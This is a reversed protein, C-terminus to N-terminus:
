GLSLIKSVRNEGGRKEVMIGYKILNKIYKNVTLNGVGVAQKVKQVYDTKSACLGNFDKKLIDIMKKCDERIHRDEVRDILIQDFYKEQILPSAIAYTLPKDKFDAFLLSCASIVNRQLGSTHAFILDLVPPEIFDETKLDILNLRSQILKATNAINFQELPLKTFKGLMESYNFSIDYHTANLAFILNINNYNKHTILHWLFNLFKRFQDPEPNDPFDVLFYVPQKTAEALTENTFVEFHEADEILRSFVFNKVRAKDLKDKIFFLASSKGVGRSGLLLFREGRFHKQSIAFIDQEIRNKMTEMANVVLYPYTKFQEFNAIGEDTFPNIKHIM